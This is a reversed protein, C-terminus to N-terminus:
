TPRSGSGVKFAIPLNLGNESKDASACREFATRILDQTAKDQHRIGSFSISTSPILSSAAACGGGSNEAAILTSGFGLFPDLIIEGRITLDILADRLM